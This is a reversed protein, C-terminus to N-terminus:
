RSQACLPLQGALILGISACARLCSRLLCQHPKMIITTPCDSDPTALHGTEGTLERAKPVREPWKAVGSLSQGRRDDHFWV